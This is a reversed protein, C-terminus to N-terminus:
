LICLQYPLCLIQFTLSYMVTQSNKINNEIKRNIIFFGVWIVEATGVLLAILPLNLEDSKVFHGGSVSWKLPKKLRSLYQYAKLLKALHVARNFSFTRLYVM